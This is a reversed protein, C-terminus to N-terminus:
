ALGRCGLEGGDMEARGDGIQGRVAEPMERLRSHFAAQSQVAWVLSLRLQDLYDAPRLEPLADANNTALGIEACGLSHPETRLGGLRFVVTYSSGGDLRGTRALGAAAVKELLGEM